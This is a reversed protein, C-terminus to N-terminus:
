ISKIILIIINYVYIYINKKLHGIIIFTIQLIFTIKVQFSFVIASLTKFIFNCFKTQM